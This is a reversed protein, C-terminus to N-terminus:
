QASSKGSTPRNSVQLAHGDPDRALFTLGAASSIVPWRSRVLYNFATQTDPVEVETHWHLLDHPRADPPYPRGDGPSLYELLEVAPGSVGGPPRLTTIRLRAGFINNLHEQEDGYNESTGAVAMGLTDRYFALSMDTDAVVIATHDIGLFLSAASQWRPDGKGAPFQLIELVHNDPDKFYFARIGAANGNWAPLTQPATSVFKVKHQRLRSFAADMDCTIIAIHQFWRDNSRSDQPYPRGPSALYETLELTETGLRMEAIRCRAGFVGTLQEVAKGAVERDSTKRFDLVKEFFAVSRDLDSVTMGVRTIAKVPVPARQQSLHPLRAALSALLALLIFAPIAFMAWRRRPDFPPLPM